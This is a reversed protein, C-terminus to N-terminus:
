KIFGHLDTRWREIFGEIDDDRGVAYEYVFKVYADFMKTLDSQNYAFYMGPIFYKNETVAGTNLEGVKAAVKATIPDASDVQSVGDNATSFWAGYDYSGPNDSRFNKVSVDCLVYKSNEIEVFDIDDLIGKGWRLADYTETRDFYTKDTKTEDYLVVLDDMLRCIKKMKATNLSTSYTVSWIHGVSANMPMGRMSEPVDANHIMEMNSYWSLCDEGYHYEEDNKHAAYAENAIAGPYYEFAVRQNCFYAGKAGWDQTFWDPSILQEDVLTRMFNCWKEFSGDIVPNSVEGDDTIYFGRAPDNALGNVTHGFLGQTWEISTGIEVGHASSTFAYVSISSGNKAGKVWRAFELVDDSDKLKYDGKTVDWSKKQKAYENIWDQRCKLAWSADSNGFLAKPAGDATTLTDYGSNERMQPYLRPLYDIWASWDDILGGDKYYTDFQSASSFSIIDPKDTSALAISLQSEFNASDYAEVILNIGYKDKVYKIYPNSDGTVRVPTNVWGVCMVRVDQVTDEDNTDGNCGALSFVFAVALAFSIITNILKQKKM